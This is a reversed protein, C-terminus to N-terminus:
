GKQGEKVNGWGSDIMSFPYIEILIPFHVYILIRFGTQLVPNLIQQLAHRNFLFGALEHGEVACASHQLVGEGLIGPFIFYPSVSQRVDVLM